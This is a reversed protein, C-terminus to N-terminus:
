ETSEEAQSKHIYIDCHRYGVVYSYCQAPTVVAGFPDRYGSDSRSKRNTTCIPKCPPLRSLLGPRLSLCRDGIVGLVLCCDRTWCGQRGRWAM